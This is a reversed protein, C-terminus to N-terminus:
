FDDKLAKEYGIESVVTLGVLAIGYVFPMFFGPNILSMMYLGFISLYIAINFTTRKVLLFKLRKILMFSYAIVGVIGMSGIIQFIACHYCDMMGMKPNYIHRLGTYGIGTGFIPYNPFNKVAINAMEARSYDFHLLLAYINDWAFYALVTGIILFAGLTIYINKQIKRPAVFILFLSISILTFALIGGIFVLLTTTSMNFFLFAVNFLKLWMKIDFSALLCILIIVMSLTLAFLVLKKTNKRELYIIAFVSTIGLVIGFIFGGRSMSFIMAAPHLLGLLYYITSSKCTKALYFCFPMTLLLVTSLNNGLQLKGGIIMDTFEKSPVFDGLQRMFPIVISIYQIILIIIGFFGVVLMLFAFIHKSDYLTHPNFYGTFIFYFLLLGFGGGVTYYLATPSFYDKPMISFLGGLVLAISILLYPTVFKKQRKIPKYYILHFIFAFIPIIAVWIYPKLLYFSNYLRLVMVGIMMICFFIPMLDDVWFLIASAFLLLIILGLVEMEFSFLISSIILIMIMFQKSTLFQRIKIFCVSNAVKIM